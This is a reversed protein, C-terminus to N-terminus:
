KIINVIIDEIDYWTTNGKKCDFMEPKNFYKAIREMIEIAKTRSKEM